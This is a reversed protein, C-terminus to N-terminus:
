ARETVALAYRRCHELYGTEYTAILAVVSRWLWSPADLGMSRNRALEKAWARQTPRDMQRGHAKGITWGLYRAAKNAEARTLREIELKLDQPMLERAVVPTSGMQAALM